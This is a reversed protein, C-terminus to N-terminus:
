SGKADPVLAEWSLLPRDAANRRFSSFNAAHIIDAPLEVRAPVEHGALSRLLACMAIHAMLFADFDASALLQGDQIRSIAEEIGNAGVVRASRHAAALSELAGLAMADNAAWVGHIEGPRRIFEAMVAAAKDRHYDGPASATLEIGPFDALADHLGRSRNRSTPAGPFGEIAVVRGRGGLSEFLYVALARGIRRDDGGVFSRFNGAMENIALVVPVGAQTLRSVPEVMAVDDVPMFLLGDPPKRQLDLLLATQDEVNDTRDPIYHETV